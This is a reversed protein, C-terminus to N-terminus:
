KGISLQDNELSLGIYNNRCFNNLLTIGNNGNIITKRAQFDVNLDNLKMAVDLTSFPYEDLMYSSDFDPYLKILDDINNVENFKLRINDNNDLYIKLYKGSPPCEIDKVGKKAIWVNDEIHVRVNGNIDFLKLNLLKYGQEDIKFWVLPHKDFAIEISNNFYFNGGAVLLVKRRLWDFDGKVSEFEKKANAKLERLEENSIIGADAKRHHEPCLAIMGDPDHHNKVHWPPDFHHYELYPIQCKRYCCKFGNEKRLQKQVAKNPTRNM